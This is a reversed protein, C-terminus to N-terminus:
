VIANVWQGFTHLDKPELFTDLVLGHLGDLRGNHCLGGDWIASGIRGELCHLLGICGEIMLLGVIVGGPGALDQRHMVVLPIVIIVVRESAFALGIGSFGDKGLGVKIGTDNLVPYIGFSFVLAQGWELFHLVPHQAV